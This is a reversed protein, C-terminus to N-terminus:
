YRIRLAKFLHSAVFLPGILLFLLDDFLSPKKGEINHGIFQAIWSAAWIALSMWLLHPMVALSGIVLIMVLTQFVAMTVSLTFYYILASIILALAAYPHVVWLLGLTSWVILPVCIWHIRLNVPHGHSEGYHALLQDIRRVSADTSAKVQMQRVEAM